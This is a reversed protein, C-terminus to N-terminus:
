HQATIFGSILFETKPHAGAALSKRPVALDNCTCTRRSIVLSCHSGRGCEDSVAPTKSSAVDSIQGVRAFGLASDTVSHDVSIATPAVGTTGQTQALPKTAASRGLSSGLWRRFEAPVKEEPSRPPNSTAHTGRQRRLSAM